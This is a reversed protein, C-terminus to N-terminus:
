EYNRTQPKSSQDISPGTEFNFIHITARTIALYSYNKMEIAIWKISQCNYRAFLNEDFSLSGIYM